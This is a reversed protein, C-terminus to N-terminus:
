ARAAHLCVRDLYSLKHRPLRYERM